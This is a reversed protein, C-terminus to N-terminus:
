GHTRDNLPAHTQNNTHATTQVWLGMLINTCRCVRVNSTCICICRCIDIHIYTYVSVQKDLLIDDFLELMLIFILIYTAFTTPMKVPWRGELPPMSPLTWQTHELALRTRVIRSTSTEFLEPGLKPDKYSLDWYTSTWILHGQNKSVGLHGEAHARM